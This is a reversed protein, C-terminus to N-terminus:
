IKINGDGILVQHHMDWVLCFVIHESGVPADSRRFQSIHKKFIEQSKKYADESSNGKILSIPIINSAEKFANAFDDKLPTCSCSTDVIFSFEETYGIYASVGSEVLSQGLIKGSNCSLTYIIKNEFDNEDGSQILVENDHGCVKDYDGHGNIFIFSPRMKFNMNELNGRTAKDGSLDLVKFGKKSAADIVEKSWCYLYDTTEDHKPRTILMKKNM